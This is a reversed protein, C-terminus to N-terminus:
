RMCDLFSPLIHIVDEIIYRYERETPRYHFSVPSKQALTYEEVDKTVMCSYSRVVVGYPVKLIDGLSEWNKRNATMFGKIKIILLILLITGKTGDISQREPNRQIKECLNMYILICL